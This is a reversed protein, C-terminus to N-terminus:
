GGYGANLHNNSRKCDEETDFFRDAHQVQAAGSSGPRSSPADTADRSPKKKGGFISDRISQLPDTKRRRSETTNAPTPRVAEEGLRVSSLSSKPTHSTATARRMSGADSQSRGFLSSRKRLGNLSSTESTLARSTGTIGSPPPLAWSAALSPADPTTADPDFRSQSAPAM